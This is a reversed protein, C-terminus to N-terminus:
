RKFILNEGEMPWPEIELLDVALPCINLLSGGKQVKAKPVNGGAALYFTHYLDRDLTYGHQGAEFDGFCYGDSASFGCDFERDAGSENMEGSTLLREVFPEALFNDVFAAIDDKRQINSIKLFCCGGSTHFYADTLSLGSKILNNNPKVSTHVSRCNHDSFVIISTSEFIGGAKLSDILDGLRKDLRTVADIAEPSLPGFHHKQMDADLLHVMTLDPKKSEIASCAVATTFLDLADAKGSLMKNGFRFIGSLVFGASGYRLMRAARRIPPIHGAIEVFNYRISKSGGTVPYLVTCVTKGARAAEDTLTGAKIDRVHFRWKEGRASPEQFDNDVIGHTRPLVGTQITTHAPYTNSVFVSSVERVLTGRACLASFNPLTLLLDVDQDGVADFSVMLLRATSAM